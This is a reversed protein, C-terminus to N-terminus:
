TSSFFNEVMSYQKSADSIKNIQQWLSLGSVESTPKLDFLIARIHKRAVRTGHECGYLQYIGKLLTLFEFAIEALEPKSCKKSHDLFYKIERFIWPNQQAKRGIMLADAGTYQLVFQAKEVSDIDGNAIIPIDSQRKVQRILDYEAQGSYACQRTRGHIALASIGCNQAIESITLANKHEKDWGTRIKLTVPVDVSGVVSKLIEKVLTENKLLASGAQVNCVKKAPCGMNIDIIQAGQKVNFQAADAMESPNTGAIQVSIPASEGKHSLRSLTKKSNRLELKSTVMESVAMTAGLKRCLLRFPLDTIGAM